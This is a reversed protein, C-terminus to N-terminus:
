HNVMRLAVRVYPIQSVDEFWTASVGRGRIRFEFSM